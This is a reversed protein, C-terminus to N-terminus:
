GLAVATPALLGLVMFILGIVAVGGSIWVLAAMGTIVSASALVIGIQFAASSVEYNHYRALTEDRHHGVEEARAQLEKRGENSKPDSDYRAAVKQWDDIQKHAAAQAAPDTLAPLQLQVTEAATRLTTMRITKAQYFAWLDNMEVTEAISHTQAGKGLMESLALLLAIVSILLAVKKSSGALHEAHEAHEHAEHAEAM